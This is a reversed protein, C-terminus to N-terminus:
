NKICRVNGTGTNFFLESMSNYQVGAFGHTLSYTGGVSLFAAYSGQGLWVYGSGESTRYGCAVASFGSLNTAGKDPEPWNFTDAKKMKDGAVNTGGLYIILTNLEDSTPIHWGTPCLNGTNICYGNYYTCEGSGWYGPGKIGSWIQNFPLNTILTGDNLKTTRLNEQMWVQTGIKVTEYTNGNLDSIPKDASYLAEKKCSTTVLFLASVITTIALNVLKLFGRM